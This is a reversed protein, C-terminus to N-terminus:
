SQEKPTPQDNDSTVKELRPLEKPPHRVFHSLLSNIVYSKSRDYKEALQDVMDAVPDTSHFSYTNKRYKMIIRFFIVFIVQCM